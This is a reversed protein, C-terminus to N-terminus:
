QLTAREMLTIWCTLGKFEKEVQGLRMRSCHLYKQEGAQHHYTCFASIEVPPSNHAKYFQSLYAGAPFEILQLAAFVIHLSAM